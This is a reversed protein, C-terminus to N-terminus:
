GGVWRGSALVAVAHGDSVPRHVGGRRGRCDGVVCRNELFHEAAASTTRASCSTRGRALLSGRVDVIATTGDGLPYFRV